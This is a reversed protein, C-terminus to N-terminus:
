TIDLDPFTLNNKRAQAARTNYEAIFTDMPVGNPTMPLGTSTMFDTPQVNPFEPDVIAIIAVADTESMWKPYLINDTLSVNGKVVINMKVDKIAPDPNLQYSKIPEGSVRLNGDLFYVAENGNPQINIMSATTDGNVPHDSTLSTQTVNKSTPDELYFDNRSQKTSDFIQTTDKSYEYTATRNPSGGTSSPNMRFIHAPNNPDMLDTATSGDAWKHNATGKTSLENKVDIYKTNNNPNVFNPQNRSDFANQEWSSVKNKDVLGNSPDVRKMELEPQVGNKMNPAPFITPDSMDKNKYTVEGGSKQDADWLEATGTAKVNGGSYVPGRVVDKIGKPDKTSNGFELTYDPDSYGDEPRKNGAYIVNWFAGGGLRSLLVDLRRTVGNVTAQVQFKAYNPDGLQTPTFFLQDRRLVNGKQDQTVDDIPIIFTGGAMHQTVTVPAPVGGALANVDNIYAAAASEAVYLAKLGSEDTFARKQNWSSISMYAASIGVLILVIITVLMLASGRESRNAKM